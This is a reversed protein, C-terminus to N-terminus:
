VGSDTATLVAAFNGAQTPTGALVGASSLTLGPPLGTASWAYPSVGGQAQLQVPGYAQGVTGQPLTPPVISLPSQITITVTLTAQQQM